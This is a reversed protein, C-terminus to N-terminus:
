GTSPGSLAVRFGFFVVRVNEYSYRHSSRLEDAKNSWGGGRLVREPAACPRAWASGDKPAGRYNAHWCDATWEWVNGHMDYLGFGNPEFSGVPATQDPFGDACAENRWAFASGADAGNASACLDKPDNGFEYVSLTGARAAYEWEAESLLRYPKGTKVRLWALYTEADNWSMNIVPRRGRGWGRDIPQEPCGGDRVCADWEAFTVEYRGVALDYDITVRHVPKEHAEGQNSHDGMLFRGRPVVAMEPCIVCDRFTKLARSPAPAPVSPEQLAIVPADAVNATPVIQAVPAAAEPASLPESSPGPTSPLALEALMTEDGSASGAAVQTEASAATMTPTSPVPAPQTAVLPTEETDAEVAEATPPSSPIDLAPAPAPAPSSEARLATQAPALDVDVTQDDGRLELSAASSASVEMAARSPASAPASRTAIRERQGSNLRDSLETLLAEDIPAYEPLGVRRNLVAIGARLVDADVDPDNVLKADRLLTLIRGRTEVDATRIQAVSERHTGDPFVDFYANAAVIRDLVDGNATVVRDYASHDLLVLAHRAEGALSSYPHAALFARVAEPNSQDTGVWDSVADGYRSAVPARQPSAQDATLESPTHRAEAETAEGRAALVSNVASEIEARFFFGGGLLCLACAMLAVMVGRDSSRPKRTPAEAFLEVSTGKKKPKPEAKPAPKRGAKEHTKPALTELRDILALWAPSTTANGGEESLDIVGEDVPAAAADLRIDIVKGEARANDVEAQFSPSSVAISSWFALVADAAWIDAERSRQREGRATTPGLSVQWGQESLAQAIPRVADRDDVLHALYLQSM